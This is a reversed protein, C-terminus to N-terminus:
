ARGQSAVSPAGSAPRGDLSFTALAVRAEEGLKSLSLGADVYLPLTSEGVEYFVPWADYHDCLEKFRWVLDQQQARPGVPDGMAIWSRGSAQYMVFATRPEDFLLRKDGLLM